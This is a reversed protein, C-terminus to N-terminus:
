TSLAMKIEPHFDFFKVFDPTISVRSSRSFMKIKHREDENDKVLFHLTTNGKKETIIDTLETVLDETIDQLDVTLTVNKVNKELTESLPSINAIRIELRSDNHRPQIKGRIMLFLGQQLYNSFKSYDNGFLAFEFIGSYDEVKFIGFPNGKEKTQGFRVNTVMGGATFERGNIHELNEFNKMQLNCFYKLEMKYDDLPHASLYMGVLEKEKDLKEITSFPLCDPIDPKKIEIEKSIAGFLSNHMSSKDAQFKNGYRILREIFNGEEVPHPAFYQARHYNGLSDLAGAAALAELAKKNVTQMNIREILNFINTYAGNKNRESIIEECANEGVGKIAAMGFRLAGKKNVSFKLHSENVDPGLVEINMKRCEDMFIAIKSIDSLNRSLLGIMFEAPYHAKLYATQYALIAYCVAHSKNFAYKAFSKWDNWVKDILKDPDKNTEVCGSMFKENNKCGERFKDELKLMQDIDKKGMAKRLTDSEGRTFNGLARSLLMVQEQFVTVGYTDKLYSKMLPHDFEVAQTGHKREIYDPIYDMPGPRYLANMAVLDDFRNPRLKKLNKRMGPSEFQFIGTTEGNCFLDFTKKDFEPITDLNVDIGKSLKIADLTEKIISLTRLGLFDMKLLGISEVLTGEYQTVLKLVFSDKEKVKPSMLPIQNDLSDRGILVGCAHVGTQRISGELLCALELTKLLIENGIKRANLIEEAFISQIKLKSIDKELDDDKKKTRAVRKREIADAVDEINGTEREIKLVESYANDLKVGASEPILKSIRDAESLPLKLVRGVDKIASKAAMTGLTCIHAVKDHGYKNAVYDLVLKRGDDDFDIDVDPMSIRDPNLFREFLLDYKIPDILTIGTCFAVVSGAASGRGPGVLVGMKRAENIFDQVILFYSPFGMMKITNLEFDIREKIDDPIPDGYLKNAGNITLLELYDLEFKIRLLHEYDGGLTEYRDGFESKIDEQTYKSKYTDMNGFEEPIPFDPLILDSNITFSEVKDVIEQTNALAEPIDAFLRNMEETTKFWEQQTYKMRSEDDFDKGTSICLLIDHAEAMNENTFHVDNTAIVKVGFKQSYEMLKENVIVQNKYVDEYMRPNKSPLRQLELYFDEGFLNKYWLIAEEAGELDNNIIKKPIEGGLCASSVILGEHYQELLQKDIRPKTYFGDLNAISILHILNRYGTLNKALLILHRGSMDTKESKDYITRRAVYAECGLIPKIKNKKCIDFFEKIGLMNGHDTLAIANMGDKVAKKVLDSISAQGDLISYQSHVHLHTFPILEM